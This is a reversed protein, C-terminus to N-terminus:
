CITKAMTISQVKICWPIKQLKLGLELSYDKPLKRLEKPYEFDVELVCGKSSNCTYKSMGFEKPGIWKFEFTPLFKWMPYDYLNNADLYIINQKKNQIVLSQINNAPSYKKSIYSVGGRMGKEFFLYM